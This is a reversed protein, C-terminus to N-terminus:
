GNLEAFYTGVVLEGARAEIKDACDISAKTDRTYSALLLAIASLNAGWGCMRLLKMVASNFERLSM